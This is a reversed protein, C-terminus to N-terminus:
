TGANVTSYYSKFAYLIKTGTYFRHGRRPSCPTKVVLSGAFDRGSRFKLFHINSNKINIGNHAFEM